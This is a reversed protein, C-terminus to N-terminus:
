VLESLLCSIALRWKDLCFNSPIKYFFLDVCKGKVSKPGLFIEEPKKSDGSADVGASDLAQFPWLHLRLWLHPQETCTQCMRYWSEHLLVQDIMMVEGKLWWFFVESSSGNDTVSGGALLGFMPARTRPASSSSSSATSISTYCSPSKPIPASTKAICINSMYLWKGKLICNITIQIHAYM